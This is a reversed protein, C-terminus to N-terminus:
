RSLIKNRFIHHTRFTISAVKLDFKIIINRSFFPHFIVLLFFRDDVFKLKCIKNITYKTSYVFHPQFALQCPKMLETHYIIIKCFIIKSNNSTPQLPYIIPFPRPPYLIEWNTAFILTIDVSATILLYM